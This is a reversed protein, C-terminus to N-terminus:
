VGTCLRGAVPYIGLLGALLLSSLLFIRLFTAFVAFFGFGILLVNGRPAGLEIIDRPCNSLKGSRARAFFPQLERRRTVPM